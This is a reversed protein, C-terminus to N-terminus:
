GKRRKMHQKREPNQENHWTDRCSPSCFRHQKNVPKFRGGCQPCVGKQHKDPQMDKQMDVHGHLPQEQTDVHAHLPTDLGVNGPFTRVGERLVQRTTKAKMGNTDVFGAFPKRPEQTRLQEPQGYSSRNQQWKFLAPSHMVQAYGEQMAMAPAPRNPIFGFGESQRKYGGDTQATGEPNITGAEMDAFDGSTYKKGTMDIYSSELKILQDQLAALYDQKEGLIRSLLAHSYEFGASVIAATLVLAIAISINFVDRFFKFMPKHAEDKMNQLTEAKATIAATTAATAATAADQAGKQMAEIKGTYEAIKARQETCTKKCTKLYEQHKGLEGQYHAIMGSDSANGVTIQTNAVSDFAKSNEAKTYAMHQQQSTSNFVEFFVGLLGILLVIGAGYRFMARHEYFVHKIMALTQAMLVAMVLFVTFALVEGINETLWTTLGWLDAVYFGMAFIFYLLWTTAFGFKLALQVYAIQQKAKGIAERTLEIQQALKYASGASNNM